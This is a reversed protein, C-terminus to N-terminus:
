YRSNPLQFEITAIPKGEIAFIAHQVVYLLRRSNLMLTCNTVIEGRHSM